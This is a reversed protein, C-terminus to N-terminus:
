FWDRIPPILELTAAALYVGVAAVGVGVAVGVPSPTRFLVQGGALVLVFAIGLLLLTGIVSLLADEVADRVVAYLQAEDLDSHAAADGGRESSRPDGDDPDQRGSDPVM